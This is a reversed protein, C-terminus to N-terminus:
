DKKGTIGDILIIYSIGVVIVGFIQQVSMVDENTSGIILNMMKGFLIGFPVLTLVMAAYIMKKKM